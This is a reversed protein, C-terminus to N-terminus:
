WPSREVELQVATRDAIMSGLLRAYVDTHADSDLYAALGAEDDVVAAVGYDAPSPRLRVNVGCAYARLEPIADAMAILAATLEAVREPTTDEHWRFTVLHLIM